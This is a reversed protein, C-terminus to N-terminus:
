FEPQGPGDEVHWAWAGDVKGKSHRVIKPWGHKIRAGRMPRLEFKRPGDVPDSDDAYPDLAFGLEPWYNWQETGRLRTASGDGAPSHGELLLGFEYKSRLGDFVRMLKSAVAMGAAGEMEACKYIPGIAVVDPRHERIVNELARKGERTTFDIPAPYSWVVCDGYEWVENGKAAEYMAQTLPDVIRELPNELDVILTRLKNPLDFGTFPHLGGAAAIVIQQWLATKGSGSGSALVVRTTRKLLDPILWPAFDDGLEVAYAVLDDLIWVGPPMDVPIDDEVGEGMDKIQDIAAKVDAPKAHALEAIQGALGLFKRMVAYDTVNKAYIGANTTSPCSAQLRDLVTQGGCEDLLGARALHEAVTIPDAVNKAPDLAVPRAAHLDLIAHYIHGHAATSFDAPQVGRMVATEIANTTILMAGLLGEESPLHAPPPRRSM